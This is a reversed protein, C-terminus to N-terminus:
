YSLCGYYITTQAFIILIYGFTRHIAKIQLGSASKWRSNELLYKAFIGGLMPMTVSVVIGVGFLPHYGEKLTWNEHDLAQYGLGLTTGWLLFASIRHLWMSFRWYQKLYRLSSIQLLSLITWAAWMALGHSLYVDSVLTLSVKGDEGIHMDFLTHFGKGRTHGPMKSYTTNFENYLGAASM